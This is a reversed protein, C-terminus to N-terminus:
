IIPPNKVISAKGGELARVTNDHLAEKKQKDQELYCAYIIDLMVMVPFQPSYVNGHNLHKLSPILVVEDCYKDFEPSNHATLLITKAGRRHSEKLFFLVSEQMGSNSIGFILSSANRFVTQMRMIDPATVSNIDVGIRMFRMEMEDSAFGSSGVGCVFVREAKTLYKAIRGTQAEDMLSYTKNLLEQYANLVMRTNNTISEQKEVFTKEYQYVFERYGRYGCKKAFRSLSAESVFLKEAVSKASLDLKERNKIFFDAIDQEVMTFNDYNSEIMPVVSKVYYEM